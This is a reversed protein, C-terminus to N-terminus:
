SPAVVRDVLASVYNAFNWKVAGAIDKPFNCLFAEGAAEARRADKASRRSGGGGDVVSESSGAGDSMADGLVLAIIFKAPVGIHMAIILLSRGTARQAPSANSGLGRAAVLLRRALQGRSAPGETPLLERLLNVNALARYGASLRRASTLGRATSLDASGLDYREGRSSLLTHM